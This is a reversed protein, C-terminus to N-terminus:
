TKKGEELVEKSNLGRIIKISVEQKSKEGFVMECPLNIQSISM